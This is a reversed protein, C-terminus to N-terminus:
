VVEKLQLFPFQELLENVTEVAQGETLGVIDPEGDRWGQAMLLVDGVIGSGYLLSAARNLPLRHLAGEENCVIRLPEPLYMGRVIEFWGGVAQQLDQLMFGNVVRLEVISIWNDATIRIAKEYTTM